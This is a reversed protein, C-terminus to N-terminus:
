IVLSLFIIRAIGYNREFIISFDKNYRFDEDKRIELIIFADDSLWNSRALRELTPYTLNSNYPPDIFVINCQLISKPLRDASCCILTIKDKIRFSEATKKSLELNFYDSDVMFAHKAGRSLAEFSFSGSGCFLDLVNTNHISKKSFLVSFIAERVKSMTPRAALNNGTVIKRGRYKGSIIRLM